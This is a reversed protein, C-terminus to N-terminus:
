QSKIDSNNNDDNKCLKKSADSQENEATMCMVSKFSMDSTKISLNHHVFRIM